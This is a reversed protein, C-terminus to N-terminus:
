IRYIHRPIIPSSDYRTYPLYPISIHMFLLSFHGFFLYFLLPNLSIYAPKSMYLIYINFHGSFKLIKSSLPIYKKIHGFDASFYRSNSFLLLTKSIKIINTEIHGFPVNILTCYNSSFNQHTQNM